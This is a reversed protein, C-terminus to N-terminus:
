LSWKFKLMSIWIMTPVNMDAVDHM